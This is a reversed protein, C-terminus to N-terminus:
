KYLIISKIFNICKNIELESNSRYNHEKIHLIKWGLKTLSYERSLENLVDLNRVTGTSFEILDDMTIDPHWYDGDFEIAIKYRPISFDLFRIVSTDYNKVGTFVRWEDDPGYHIDSLDTVGYLRSAINNFLDLSIKSYKCSDGNLGRSFGTNSMWENWRKPGEVPGYKDIMGDISRVYSAHEIVENYRRNGEEEGYKSIYGERTRSFGMSKCHEKYLKTGEEEGYRRIHSDIDLRRSDNHEKYKIRGLEEGYKNIYRELSRSYSLSETFENYKKPGEIDGYKNIFGDLTHGISKSKSMENYRKVGDEYGLKSILGDLTCAKMRKDKSENYLMEGKEKGYREIMGELTMSHRRKERYERFKVPGLEPGYRKIFNDLSLKIKDKFENYKKTGEEVGLRSIFSELTKSKSMKIKTNNMMEKAADEGFREVKYELSSQYSKGHSVSCACYYGEIANLFKCPNNCGKRKCTPIIPTGHDDKPLFRDNYWEQEPIGLSKIYMRIDSKKQYENTDPNLYMNITKRGLIKVKFELM